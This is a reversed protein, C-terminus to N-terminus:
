AAPLRRRPVLQRGPVGREDEAVPIRLACGGPAEKQDVWEGARRLRIFEEEPENEVEGHNFSNGGYARVEGDALAFVKTLSAGPEPPVPDDFRARPTEVSQWSTGDFHASAPQDYAEGHVPETGPGTSRSGVAWVDDPGVVALDATEHPLRTTTWRTGDWHVATREDALAWIDRPGAAELDGVDGPPPDAVATWRTGEWSM